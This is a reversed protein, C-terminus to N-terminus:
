RPELPIKEDGDPTVVLAFADRLRDRDLARAARAVGADDVGTVFWIFDVESPRMAAVLGTGGGEVRARHGNWDLLRLEDADPGFRAFIGSWRPGRDIRRPWTQDRWHEWKGVLVRGKYLSKSGKPAPGLRVGARTLVDKVRRCPASAADECLVRVPFREGNFGRTFTEPFAGVTARVDLTVYWDRLDWQVVDGPYLKYDVPLPDTEIGNVMSVWATDVPAESSALGEISAVARGELATGVDVHDKLLRMMTPPEPLSVDDATAISERGFERTVHQTVTPGSSEGSDGCGGIALAGLACATWALRRTRAAERWSLGMM